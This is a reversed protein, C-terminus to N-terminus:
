HFDKLSMQKGKEIDKHVSDKFEELNKDVDFIVEEDSFGKFYIIFECIYQQILFSILSHTVDLVNLDEANSQNQLTNILEKGIKTALQIEKSYNEM